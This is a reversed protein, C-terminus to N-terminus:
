LEKRRTIRRLRAPALLIVLGAVLSGAAAAYQTTTGGEDSRNPLAALMRFDSPRAAPCEDEAQDLDFIPFTHEAWELTRAAPSGLFLRLGERTQALEALPSSAAYPEDLV